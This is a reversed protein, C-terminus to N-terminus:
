SEVFDALFKQLSDKTREDTMNGDRDFVSAARSVMLRGGFWLDSGFSRFVSLWTNQSLITGFGGPSAGIIAVKKGAFVRKYDASPRSVWDVANKLVGPISNNYEPTAILLADAEVIAKQLAIVAPPFGSNMEDDANYLPIGHLTQITLSSGEPM